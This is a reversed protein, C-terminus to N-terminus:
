VPLDKVYAFNIFDEEYKKYVKKILDKSYFEQLRSNSNTKHHVDLLTKKDKEAGDKFIKGKIVDFNMEFNEFKGIYDFQIMPFFLCETQPRWHQNMSRPKQSVIADIFEEFSVEADEKRGLVKTVSRRGATINEERVFKDLYGSLLRTYPNRVFTFKFYDVSHMIQYFMEGPLQAPWLLPSPRRQHPIVTKDGIPSHNLEYSVLTNNITSSAVKPNHVYVYTNVLSINIVKEIQRAPCFRRLNKYFEATLASKIKGDNM